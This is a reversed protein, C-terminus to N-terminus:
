QKESTGSCGTSEAGSLHLYDMVKPKDLPTLEYLVLSGLEKRFLHLESSGCPLAPHIDADARDVFVMVPSGNVRALMTTTYASIGGCYTLGEMKSGTPLAALLLGQGQRKQFTSAFEQDDKCIWTPRFGEAVCTEYISALPKVPNYDPQPQQNAFFKWVLMGWVLSAATAALILTAKRRPKRTKTPHVDATQRLKSLTQVPSSPAFSKRLSKDILKQLEIESQLDASTEIARLMVEREQGQLQDDLYAELRDIDSNKRSDTM